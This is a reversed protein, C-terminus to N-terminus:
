YLINTTEQTVMNPRISQAAAEPYRSSGKFTGGSENLQKQARTLTANGNKADIISVFQKTNKNYIAFDPTAYKQGGGLYFRPKTMLIEGDALGTRLKTEVIDESIKSVERNVVLQQAATLKPNPTATPRATGIGAENKMLQQEVVQVYNKPGLVVKFLRQGTIYLFVDTFAEAIPQEYPLVKNGEIDKGRFIRSTHNSLIYVPNWTKNFATGAKNVFSNNGVPNSPKELWQVVDNFNYEWWQKGNDRSAGPGVTDGRADIHLIPSNFFCAYPSIDTTPKPDRNWRRGLRSDYEWYMATTINDNLESEKEQTNISYRYKSIPAAQYKRGPIMMGFSYYDNATIIDPKYYDVKGDPATSLKTYGSVTNYGYTGDDVPTKKDSVTVLVNQLHNVL